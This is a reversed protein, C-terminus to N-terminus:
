ATRVYNDLLSPDITLTGPTVFEIEAMDRVAIDRGGGPCNSTLHTSAWPNYVTKNERLLTWQSYDEGSTPTFDRVKIFINCLTHAANLFELAVYIKEDQQILYKNDSLSFVEEFSSSSSYIRFLMRNSSAAGWLVSRVSSSGIIQLEDRGLVLNGYRTATPLSICTVILSNAVHSIPGSGIRAHDWGGTDALFYGADVGVEKKHASLTTGPITTRIGKFTGVLVGQEPTNLVTTGTPLFTPDPDVASFDLLQLYNPGSVGQGMIGIDMITDDIM